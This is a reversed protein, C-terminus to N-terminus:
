QKHKVGQGLKIQRRLPPLRLKVKEIELENVKPDARSLFLEYNALANEFEGLKDHATAIFYYTVVLEPKTELIWKYEPLAEGFRKLEYLATALNAHAVYNDPATLIVQHLINAAEGFRRSQVLAAAYGTAYETNKPDIENARRYFALSRAPDDTRYSAGLRALLMANRPNKQLLTELAQRAKVPDADNAAEIEAATGTVKIEGQASTTAAANAIGLSQALRGAEENRGARQYLDLLRALIQKDGHKVREATKLDAIAQEYDGEAARTDSREVLAAVNEPEATLAQDLSSKAGAKDGLARESMARLIWASVPADRDSTARKALDAAESPDGARLRVEALARLAVGHQPELKLAQRLIPEAERDRTNRVLLAGLSAYPLSWDKRLAIARRLAAEAEPLRNLSVLASGLQFEAEPFEPRLKIAQEYFDVARELDGHAHANQGREFLRIPDAAGDGLEDTQALAGTALVLSWLLAPVIYRALRSNSRRLRPLCSIM